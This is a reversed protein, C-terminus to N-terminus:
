IITKNKNFQQPYIINIEIKSNLKKNIFVIYIYCSKLDFYEDMFKITKEDYFIYKLEM